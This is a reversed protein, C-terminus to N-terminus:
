QAAVYCSHDDAHCYWITSGDGFGFCISAHGCAPDHSCAGCPGPGANPCEGPYADCRATACNDCYGDLRGEWPDPLEERGAPMGCHCLADRYEQHGRRALERIATMDADGARALLEDDTADYPFNTRM